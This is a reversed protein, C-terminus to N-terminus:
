MQSISTSGSVPTAVITFITATSSTTFHDVRHDDMALNVATERL